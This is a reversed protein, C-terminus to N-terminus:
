CHHLGNFFLVAKHNVSLMKNSFDLINKGRLNNDPAMGHDVFLLNSIRVVMKMRLKKNGNVIFLM